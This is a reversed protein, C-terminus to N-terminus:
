RESMRWNDALLEWLDTAMYAGCKMALIYVIKNTANPM